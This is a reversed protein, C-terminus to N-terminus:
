KPFKLYKTLKVNEFTMKLTNIINGFKFANLYRLSNRFRLNKLEIISLTLASSNIADVLEPFRIQFFNHCKNIIIRTGSGISAIGMGVRYVGLPENSAFSAFGDRVELVNMLYDVAEFDPLDVQCNRYMKSSHLGIAVLRIIDGAYFKKGVFSVPINDEICSSNKENQILMRTWTINCQPNALMFAVQTKLKGPLWYDDGDCHCVFEGKALKHTEVFNKYPGLNVNRLVPKIFDYKEAYDLIIERTRDMSLDDSVIVEFDFDVKQNVISDLCQAIYHEQNYTVLCVSVLPKYM